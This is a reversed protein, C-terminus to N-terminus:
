EIRVVVATVNDRGGAENAADVLTQAARELDDGAGL